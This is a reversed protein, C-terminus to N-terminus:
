HFKTQVGASIRLVRRISSLKLTKKNKKKTITKITPACKGTRTRTSHVYYLNSHVCVYM